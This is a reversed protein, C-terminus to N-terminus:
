SDYDPDFGREVALYYALIQIPVLNVSTSAM